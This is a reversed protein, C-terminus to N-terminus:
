DESDRLRIVRKALPQKREENEIERMIMRSNLLGAAAYSFKQLYIVEEIRNIVRLLEQEVDSLGSKRILCTKLDRFDNTTCGLYLSLGSSTFVLVRPLFNEGKEADGPRIPNQKCYSFYSCAAEWLLAPDNFLVNIDHTTRREWFDKQTTEM